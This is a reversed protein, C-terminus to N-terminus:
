RGRLLLSTATLEAVDDYVPGTLVDAV